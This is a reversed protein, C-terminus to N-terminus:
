TNNSFDNITIIDRAEQISQVIYIEWNSKRQKM